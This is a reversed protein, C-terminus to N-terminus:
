HRGLFAKSLRPLREAMEAEDDFDFWEADRDSGAERNSGAERDSGAEDAAAIAAWYGEPDGTAKEYASSAAGTMNECELPLLARKLRAVRHASVVDVLSDPDAIARGWVRRGRTILWGRFYYFGDDSCGGNILYAAAWLLPRSSEVSVRDYHRGFALIEDPPRRALRRVVRRAVWGATPALRRSQDITLWFGDRDV